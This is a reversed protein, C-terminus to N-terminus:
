LQFGVKMQIQAGWIDVNEDEKEPQIGLVEVREQGSDEKGDRQMDGRAAAGTNPIDEGARRGDDEQRNGQSYHRQHNDATQADPWKNAPFGSNRSM